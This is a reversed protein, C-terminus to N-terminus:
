NYKGYNEDKCCKGMSSMWINAETFSYRQLGIESVQTEAGM